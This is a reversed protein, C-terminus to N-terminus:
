TRLLPREQYFSHFVAQCDCKRTLLYWNFIKKLQKLRSHQLKQWAAAGRCDKTAKSLPFPNNNPWVASFFWTRKNRYSSLTFPSLVYPKFQRARSTQFMRCWGTCVATGLVYRSQPKFSGSRALMCDDQLTRWGAIGIILTHWFQSHRILFRVDGLKLPAHLSRSVFSM